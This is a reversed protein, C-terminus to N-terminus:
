EAANATKTNGTMLASYEATYDGRKGSLVADRMEFGNGQHATMESVPTPNTVAPWHGPQPLAGEAVIALPRDDAV